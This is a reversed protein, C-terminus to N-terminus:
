VHKIDQIRLIVGNDDTESPVAEYEFAWEKKAEAVEALHTAGKPFLCTGGSILHRQALQLLVSLSALARASLVDAELPPLLEAREPIINANLQLHRVAERLFAAKRQDSEILTFRREPAFEKSLIALVIAPFGGGSGIDVIHSCHQPILPFIQASDEVHRKWISEISSKSVLNIAPNWKKVLDCFAHLRDVTERSVDPASQFLIM